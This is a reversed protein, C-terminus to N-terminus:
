EITFWLSKEYAKRQQGSLQDRIARITFGGVLKGADVYMWDQIEAVPAKLQRVPPHTALTGTFAAGDFSINQLWHYSGDEEVAVKVSFDSETPTPSSLRATFTAISDRAQQAARAIVVDEAPIAVANAGSPNKDQLADRYRFYWVAGVVVTALVVGGIVIFVLKTM